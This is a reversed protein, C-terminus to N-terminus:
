LAYFVVRPGKAISPLEFVAEPVETAIPLLWRPAGAGAELRDLEAAVTEVDRVSRVKPIMYGHPLGNQVSLTQALDQQWWATEM